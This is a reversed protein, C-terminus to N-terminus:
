NPSFTRYALGKGFVGVNLYGSRLNKGSSLFIRRFSVATSLDVLPPHCACFDPHCTLSSKSSLPMCNDVAYPFGLFYLLKSIYLLPRMTLLSISSFFSSSLVTLKIRFADM